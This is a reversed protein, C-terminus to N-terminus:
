FHVWIDHSDMDKAQDERLLIEDKVIQDFKGEPHFQRLTTCQIYGEPAGEHLPFVKFLKDKNNFYVRDDYTLKLYATIPNTATTHLHHIAGKPMMNLAKFLSSNEMASKHEFFNHIARNM